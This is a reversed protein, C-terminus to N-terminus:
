NDIASARWEVEATESWLEYGGRKAPGPSVFTRRRREPRLIRSQDSQLHPFPRPRIQKKAVITQTTPV